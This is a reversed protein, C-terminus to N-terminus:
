KILVMKKVDIFSETELKYFYMGSSFQSADFTTEYRGANLQENLLVAVERGLLDYVVLKTFSQKPIDFKILTSPNFPNPFNSYLKYTEPIESNIPNIGVLGTRFNWISSYPSTGGVNTANVRWYYLNNNQLLGPAVQYQAISINSSDIITSSFTNELSLQVRYSTASSLSDWDLLPTLSQGTSSNPPSILTPAVPPTVGSGNSTKLIMASNDNFHGVCWGTNYGSFSIDSIWPSQLGLNQQVWTVGSNTTKFLGNDVFRSVWGSNVDHFFLGTGFYDGPLGSSVQIWNFGGNTTKIVDSSYGYGINESLMIMRWPGGGSITTWTFGRNTTKSFIGPYGYVWGTQDNIFYISEIDTQGPVGFTNWTRGGTTSVSFGNSYRYTMFGVTDQNQNIMFQMGTVRPWSPGPFYVWSGGSNTSKFYGGRWWISAYCMETTPWSWHSFASDGHAVHNHTVFWNTGGNTTKIIQFDTMAYVLNSNVAYVKHVDGVAPSSQSVWTIQSKLNVSLFFSLLTLLFIFVKM